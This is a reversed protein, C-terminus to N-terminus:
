IGEYMGRGGPLESDDQRFGNASYIKKLFTLMLLSRFRLLSLKLQLLMKMDERALSELWTVKETNNFYLCGMQVLSADLWGEPCPGSSLPSELEHSGLAPFLLLLFYLYRYSNMM